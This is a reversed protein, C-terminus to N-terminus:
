ASRTGGLKIQTYTICAANKSLNCIFNLHDITLVAKGCTKQLIIGLCEVLAQAGVEGINNKEFSYSFSFVCSIVM